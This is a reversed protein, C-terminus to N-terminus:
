NFSFIYKEKFLTVRYASQQNMQWRTLQLKAMCPKTEKTLIPALAQLTNMILYIVYFIIIDLNETSFILRVPLLIYLVHNQTKKLWLIINITM